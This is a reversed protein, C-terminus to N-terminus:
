QVTEHDSIEMCNDAMTKLMDGLSLKKDEASTDLISKIIYAAYVLLALAEAPGETVTTMLSVVWAAKQREVKFATM